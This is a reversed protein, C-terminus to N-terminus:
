KRIDSTRAIILPARNGLAFSPGVTDAGGSAFLEVSLPGETRPLVRVM